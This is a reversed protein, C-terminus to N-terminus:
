VRKKEVHSSCIAAGNVLLCSLTCNQHALVMKNLWVLMNQSKKLWTKSQVILSCVSCRQLHMSLVPPSARLWCALHVIYTRKAYLVSTTLIQDLRSKVWKEALVAQQLLQSASLM